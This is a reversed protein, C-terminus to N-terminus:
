VVVVWTGPNGAVTCAYLFPDTANIGDAQAQWVGLAAAHTAGGSTIAVSATLAGTAGTAGSTNTGIGPRASAQGAASGGVDNSTNSASGGDWQFTTNNAAGAFLAAVEVAARSTAGSATLTFSAGSATDSGSAVLPCGHKSGTTAFGGPNRFVYAALKRGSGNAHASAALVIQGGSLDGSQIVHSFMRVRRTGDSVVLGGDTATDTIGSDAGASATVSSETNVVVFVVLDGVQPTGDLSKTTNATSLTGTGVAISAQGVATTYSAAVLTSPAVSARREYFDGPNANGVTSASPPGYGAWLKSGQAGAGDPFEVCAPSNRGSLAVYATGAPNYARVDRTITYAGGVIGASFKVNGSSDTVQILAQSVPAFQNGTVLFGDLNAPGTTMSMPYKLVTSVLDPKAIWTSRTRWKRIVRVGDLHRAHGPGYM